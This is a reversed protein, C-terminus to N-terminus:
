KKNKNKQKHKVGTADDTNPSADLCTSGSASAEGTALNCIEIEYKGDEGYSYDGRSGSDWRVHAKPPQVRIVIGTNWEHFGQFDGDRGPKVKCGVAINEGPKLDRQEETVVIEYLGHLGYKQSYCLVNDKDWSVWVKSVEESHGVVTGPLNGDHDDTMPWDPGRRVRSGIKPLITSTSECYLTRRDPRERLEKMRRDSEIRIAFMDAQDDSSMDPRRRFDWMLSMIDLTGARTSLFYQRSLRRGDTYTYVNKDISRLVNVFDQNSDGVAVFFVSINRKSISDLASLIDTLSEDIAEERPIDPGTLLLTETPKYDSIVIIKPVVLIGNTTFYEDECSLAGVMALWLGGYLPSPGGLRVHDMYDTVSDYGTTLYLQLRTEHGFTAIAIYEDILSSSGDHSRVEQLGKLYDNVFTRTQVWAEGAAMSESIDILFVTVVGKVEGTILSAKEFRNSCAQDNCMASACRSHSDSSANEILSNGSIQETSYLDTQTQRDASATINETSRDTLQTIGTSTRTHTDHRIANVPESRSTNSTDDTKDRDIQLEHLTQQMENLKIHMDKLKNEFQRTVEATAKLVDLRAAVVGLEARLVNTHSSCPCASENPLVRNFKAELQRIVEKIEKIDSKLNVQEAM